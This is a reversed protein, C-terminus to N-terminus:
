PLLVAKKFYKREMKNFGFSFILIIFLLFGCCSLIILNLYNPVIFVKFLQWFLVLIFLSKFTIPILINFYFKTPKFDIIKCIYIPQVFLKVILMPIAQGLAVGILGFRRVLLLSLILNSLGELSNAIAFYKHKSIGYLLGWASSQMLAFITPIILILLIPYANTYEKGVWRELFAKGLLIIFGGIFFSLYGSIKTILVYKEQISKYDGKGDYQSFVPMMLGTSNSIFMTFYRILNAAVAYITVYNLGMFGAIVFNSVKFNLQNAIQIIFSTFSYKFFPKLLSMDIFKRSLVIYNFMKKVMIFKVLYGSAELGFTIIALALIGYGAKLFVVVLATRLILKSFEITAYLDYRVHSLLIGSFVRMPFGFAMSVGLVVILQRFLVVDSPRKVFFPALAVIVVTILLSLVGIFNFLLLSTNISKNAATFDQSGIAKSIFRQAAFVLGFDFIGYFGLFSGAIMWLGYMKDGLSHIIFPMLLIGILASAIFNSTGVVSGRILAKAKRSM